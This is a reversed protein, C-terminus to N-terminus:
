EAVPLSQKLANLCPLHSLWTDTHNLMRMGHEVVDQVLNNGPAGFAYPTCFCVMVTSGNPAQVSFIRMHVFLFCDDSCYHRIVTEKYGSKILDNKINGFCSFLDDDVVYDLVNDHYVEFGLLKDLYTYGKKLFSFTEDLMIEQVTFLSSVINPVSEVKEAAALYLENGHSDKSITGNFIFKSSSKGPSILSCLIVKYRHHFVQYMFEHAKHVLLSIHNGMYCNKTGFFLPFNRSVYVIKGQSTVGVGISNFSKLVEETDFFSLNTAKQNREDFKSLAIHAIAQSLVQNTSYEGDCILSKIEEIIKRFRQRNEKARNQSISPSVFLQSSNCATM